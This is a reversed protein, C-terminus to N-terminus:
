LATLTPRNGSVRRVGFQHPRHFPGAEGEIDNEVDIAAADGAPADLVRFTGNLEVGRAAAM